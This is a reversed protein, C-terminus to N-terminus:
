SEDSKEEKEKEVMAEFATAMLLVAYRVPLKKHTRVKRTVWDCLVLCVASDEPDLSLIDTEIDTPLPPPPNYGGGLATKKKRIDQCEECSQEHIWKDWIGGLLEKAVELPKFHGVQYCREAWYTLVTCMAADHMPLESLSDVAKLYAEKAPTHHDGGLM